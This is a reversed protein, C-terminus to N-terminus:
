TTPSSTAAGATACPSPWPASRTARGSSSSTWSSSLRAPSSPLWCPPMSRQRPRRHTNPTPTPPPPPPRMHASLSHSCFSDGPHLRHNVSALGLLAWESHMYVPSGSLSCFPRYRSLLLLSPLLRAARLVQGQLTGLMATVAGAGLSLHVSCLVLWGQVDGGGVVEFLARCLCLLVLGRRRLHPVRTETAKSLSSSAGNM